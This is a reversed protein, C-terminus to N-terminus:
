AISRWDPLLGSRALREADEPRDVDWITAPERWVLGFRRLRARTEQMVNETSWVMASFIEPMPRALGVLGYGGDEAPLFVADAGERLAAASARLHDVSICPCDSGMLLTPTGAQAAFVAHMRAGLDGESQDALSIVLKKACAQFFDHRRDPACWLTVPGLGAATATVLAYEVLLAHLAAAGEAGLAPILRTKAEGAIPARAFVAIACETKGPDMAM